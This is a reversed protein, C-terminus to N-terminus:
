SLHLSTYLEPWMAFHCWWLIQSNSLSQYKKNVCMTVHSTVIDPRLRCCFVMVLVAWVAVFCQWSSPEHCLCLLVHVSKPSGTTPMLPSLNMVNQYCVAKRFCTSRVPSAGPCGTQCVSVSFGCDCQGLSSGPSVVTGHCTVKCHDPYAHPVIQVTWFMRSPPCTDNHGPHFRYSVSDLVIWPWQSSLHSLSFDCQWPSSGPIVLTVM